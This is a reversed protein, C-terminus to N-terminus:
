AFSAWDIHKNPLIESTKINILSLRAPERMLLAYGPGDEASAVTM